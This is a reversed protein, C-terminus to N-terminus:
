QNKQSFHLGSVHLHSVVLVPDTDRVVVGVNISLETLTM